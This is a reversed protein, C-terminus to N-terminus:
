GTREGGTGSIEIRLDNIESRIADTANAQARDLLHLSRERHRDELHPASAMAARFTTAITRLNMRQRDESTM